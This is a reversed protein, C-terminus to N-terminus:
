EEGMRDYDLTQIPKEFVVIPWSGVKGSQGAGLRVGIATLGAQAIFHSRKM